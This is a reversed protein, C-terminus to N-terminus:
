RAELAPIGSLVGLTAEFSEVPHKEDLLPIVVPSEVGADLYARLADGIRQEDGVIEISDVMADSIAALADARCGAEHAALAAEVEQGFGARTFARAYGDVTCYNFLSQRGEALRQDWDGLGLRVLAHIRCSGAPRHGRREGDRVQDVAWGIASAPLTNLLVGDAVEGALRLMRQNLAGIVIKPKNLPLEISMRSKPLTYFDGSFSFPEGAFCLRLVEVLERTQAVPRDTFREGHWTEVVTRGSVGIGLFIEADPHAAQLTGASMATLLPGRLQLAIVGTGLSLRPAATGAIALCSFIEPGRTEGTWLSTYGLESAFRAAQTLRGAGFIHIPYAFGLEM